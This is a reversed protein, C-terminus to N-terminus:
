GVIAATVAGAIAGMISAAAGDRAAVTVDRRSRRGALVALAAGALAGGVPLTGLAAERSLGDAASDKLDGFTQAVERELDANRFGSSRVGDLKAVVEETAVVCVDPYRERHRLISAVCDVAKLQLTEIVKDGDFLEVDAGQHNTAEFLRAVVGDGDLNEAQAYLLEHHIGKVNSMVGRLQQPDLARLYDGLQADTAGALARTSRRLAQLVLAEEASWGETQGMILAAFVGSGVASFGTAVIRDAEPRRKNRGGLLRRLGKRSPTALKPAENALARRARRLRIRPLLPRRGAGDADLADIEAVLRQLTVGIMPWYGADATSPRAVADALSARLLTAAEVVRHEGDSLRADSHPRGFIRKRFLMAAAFGIAGSIMALIFGGGVAGLGFWSGIWFLTASTLAAGSLAGLATGTSATGIMGVTGMVGASAATAATANVAAGTIWPASRSGDQRIARTLLELAEDITKTATDRRSQQAPSPLARPRLSQRRWIMGCGQESAGARM